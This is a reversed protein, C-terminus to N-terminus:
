PVGDDTAASGACLGHEPSTLNAFVAERYLDPPAPLPGHGTCGGLAEPNLGLRRPREWWGAVLCSPDVEEKAPRTSTVIAQM